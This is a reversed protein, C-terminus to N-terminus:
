HIWVREGRITHIGIEGYIPEQQLNDDATTGQRVSSAGISM